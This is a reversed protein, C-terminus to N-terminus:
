IHLGSKKASHSIIVIHSPSYIPVVVVKRRNESIKQHTAETQSKAQKGAAERKSSCCVTRKQSGPFALM